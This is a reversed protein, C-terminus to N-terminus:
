KADKSFADHFLERVLEGLGRFFKPLYLLLWIPWVACTITMLAARKVTAASAKDEVSTAWHALFGLGVILVSAGYLIWVVFWDSSSM